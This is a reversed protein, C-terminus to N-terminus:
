LKAKGIRRPVRMFDRVGETELPVKRKKKKVSSIEINYVKNSPLEIYLNNNKKILTAPIVEINKSSNIINGSNKDLKIYISEGEIKSTKAYRIKHRCNVSNRSLRYAKERKSM